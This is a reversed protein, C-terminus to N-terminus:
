ARTRSSLVRPGVPYVGRGHQYGVTLGSASGYEAGSADIMRVKSFAPFDGREPVECLMRALRSPAYRDDSNLIALIDGSAEAIGRAIAQAAGCHILELFKIEPRRIEALM